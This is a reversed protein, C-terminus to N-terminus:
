WIKQNDYKTTSNDRLVVGTQMATAPSGGRPSPKDGALEYLGKWSAAISQDVIQAAREPSGGSLRVLRNYAAKLSSPVKYLEKRERKYDLWRAFYDKFRADVFDVREM